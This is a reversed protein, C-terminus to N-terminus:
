PNIRCLHHDLSQVPDSSGSPYSTALSALKDFATSLRYLAEHAAKMEPAPADLRTSLRDVERELDRSLQKMSLGLARIQPWRPGPDDSAALVQELVTALREAGAPDFRRSLLHVKVM